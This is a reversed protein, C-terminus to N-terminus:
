LRFHQQPCLPLHKRFQEYVESLKQGLAINWFHFFRWIEFFIHRNKHKKILFNEVVIKVSVFFRLHKRNADSLIGSKAAQRM